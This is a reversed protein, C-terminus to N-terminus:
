GASAPPDLVALWDKGISEEDASDDEAMAMRRLMAPDAVCCLLAKRIAEPTIDDLLLGNVGDRVVDGCNRSAIVPLQRARAEVQTVGFGDSYTPLIFVDARDYYHDAEAQPVSGHLSVRSDAAIDDPIPMDVPGVFDFHIPTAPDIRRIAEFLPLVGKRVIVQGLFLVHLPREASFAAPYARNVRAREIGDYVLPIIRIKADPVGRAVLATRSWESNVVIVDALETEARWEAWYRAPWTPVETDPHLSAVLDEEFPGPDIQNLVTTWGRSKAYAFLDRSAYSFGSVVRPPGNAVRMLRKVAVRQFWANRAMMHEIASAGNIRQGAEFMLGGLNPAWVRTAPLAPSFRGQMRGTRALPHGPAYWADTILLDLAGVADLARPIFYRQRAGIQAFIWNRATPRDLM